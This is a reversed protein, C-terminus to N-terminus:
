EGLATELNRQLTFVLIREELIADLDTYLATPKIGTIEYVQECLQERGQAILMQRLQKVAEVGQPTKALNREAPTLIGKLRALIMDGILYAKVDSPGRGMFEQEFKIVANRVAAEIEGKTKARQM